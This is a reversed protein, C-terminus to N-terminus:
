LFETLKKMFAQCIKFHKNQPIKPAGTLLIQKGNHKWVPQKQCLPFRNATNLKNQMYGRSWQIKLKKLSPVKHLVKSLTFMVYSEITLQRILSNWKVWHGLPPPGSTGASNTSAPYHNLYHPSISPAISDLLGPSSHRSQWKRTIYHQYRQVETEGKPEHRFKIFHASMCLAYQSQGGAPTGYHIVTTITKLGYQWM